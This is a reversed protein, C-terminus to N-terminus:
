MEDERSRGTVFSRLYAWIGRPYRGDVPALEKFIPKPEPVDEDPRLGCVAAVLELPVEFIFDAGDDQEQERTLRDRIPGFAAPPDGAVDLERNEDRYHVVSWQREGRLYGQAGSFMIVTSM